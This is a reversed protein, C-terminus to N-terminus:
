FGADAVHQGGRAVHPYSAALKGTDHPYGGSALVVAKRAVILREGTADRVTM